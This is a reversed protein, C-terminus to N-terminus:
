YEWIWQQFGLMGKLKVMRRMEFIVDIAVNKPHKLKIKYLADGAVSPAGKDTTKEPKYRLQTHLYKVVQDPSGPNLEFGVLIKLVRALQKYREECRRVIYGRKVPDFHMGHLSMFAYDALSRSAQDVSDQLGRDGAILDIQGYYIERLVIVDKVNYARLQEFQARNRPDFNGAEDKHFPRNSFLTAQHALSKEAEPYIRHGAVMTDYIDTGFPIKYFAALFCLDFLANHIVVRRKKFERILRAFFVVGVNLNGGHDYVPVSYVPSNGCAIALCTLTNTKPHTEIDFFIPGEFSFVQCADEARQVHIPYFESQVEKSPDYTLLKKIDQQFWFSYNSRKTPSTSKGDDKDLIDDGEGEGELADEMGWADVCDQPWYTVIYQTKNPSIYVVGRFADLSKDKAAPLFELAKAGAFIIKTIGKPKPNTGRFFDDAFTIYFSSVDDIDVGHRVMIDRVFDGAPGLLIGNNEKDFRSSGHLVLAIM